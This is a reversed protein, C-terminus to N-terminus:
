AGFSAAQRAHSLATRAADRVKLAGERHAQAAALAQEAHEVERGARALAAEAVSLEHEAHRVAIDLARRREAAEKARRAEDRKREAEARRDVRGPKEPTGAATAARREAPGADRHNRGPTAGHVPVRAGAPSMAIGALAEFGSPQILETFRGAAAARDPSLSVAELMRALQDAHPKAGAATALTTASRVADALAARHTETARRVDARGGGLAAIQAERLADGAKMLRDFAKRDRWYLQNITWPVVTPKPLAKVRDADAGKLTRALANRGSTFESLPLQYLQDIESELTVVVNHSAQRNGFPHTRV